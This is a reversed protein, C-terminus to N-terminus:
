KKVVIKHNNLFGDGEIKVIYIGNPLGNTEIEIFNDGVVTKSFYRVNDMSYLEVNLKSYTNFNSMQVYVKDKAPNPWVETKVDSVEPEVMSTYVETSIKEIEEQPLEYNYIMFDDIYGRFTPDAFQSRGIYNSIPKFDSPKISVNTSTAVLEGDVYIKVDDEGLTIALHIWRNIKLKDTLIEQEGGGNKIAFKMKNNNDSPTLFMYENEDNGFDFIRQWSNGGRWFVKTAITVADFNAVNSPLQIFAGTGNLSVAKTRDDKQIYSPEGSSAANNYNISIDKLNEEFLYHAILDDGGTAEAEVENSYNSSNIAEDVAKIAYSYNVGPVAKYDVFSTSKVDRAITQFGDDEDSKRFVTYGEIDSETNADWSLLISNKQPEASLNQPADPAKFDLQAGVPVFKWHQGQDNARKEWQLVNTGDAISVGQLSIYKGSHRSRIYFYGDEAYELDWQQNEGNANNWLMINGGNALSWDQIDLSFNNNGSTIQHFSFDGGVRNSVPNVDWHQNAVQNYRKIQINNGANITNDVELVRRSKRNVIIYKGDVVPQIDDGYTIRVMTEANTQGQQYGTGGPLEMIYERQPGHGDFFVDRDKSVFRYTTTAAQRESTGGFAMIEGNPKRYVSAATWNPRHEAYALREGGSAKCFEGRTLEATGWWIGTQMGYEVGVMAEMVNHLEDNTAHHGNARVAQFFAAYNDFSGALQHTNGEDLNDKLYNYWNLAQDANLTNGGSVRIGDFFSNNKIVEAIAYFDDITGQGWGYDPENFPSVAVINVGADQHHRATVEILKTWNEANGVFYPDVSPHDCNLVVDTSGMRSKIINIRRNLINMEEEPLEDNVLPSTPTFSSRIIGVTERDMFEIGRRINDESLWALDLGWIIPKQEGVGLVDFFLSRHATNFAKQVNSEPLEQSFSLNYSCISLLVTLLYSVHKVTFKM